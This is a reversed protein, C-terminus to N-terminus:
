MLTNSHVCGPGLSNPYALTCHLLLIQLYSYLRCVKEDFAVLTQVILIQSVVFDGFITM